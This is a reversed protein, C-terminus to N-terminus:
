TPSAMAALAAVIGVTIMLDLLTFGLSKRKM